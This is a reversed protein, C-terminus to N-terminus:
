REVDVISAEAKFVRALEIVGVDDSLERRHAAYTPPSCLHEEHAREPAV